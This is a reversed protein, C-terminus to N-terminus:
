FFCETPPLFSTKPDAGRRVLLSTAWLRACLLSALSPTIAPPGPSPTPPHRGAKLSLGSLIQSSFARLWPLSKLLPPGPLTSRRAASPAPHRSRLLSPADSLLAPRLIIPVPEEGVRGTESDPAPPRLPAPGPARALEGRRGGFPRPLARTRPGGGPWTVRRPCPRPPVPTRPALGPRLSGCAAPLVSLRRPLRAPGPRLRSRAPVRRPRRPSIAPHDRRRRPSGVGPRGSAGTHPAPLDARPRAAAAEPPPVTRAPPPPDRCHTCRWLSTSQAGMGARATARPSALRNAVPPPLVNPMSPEPPREPPLFQSPHAASWGPTVAGVGLKDPACTLHPCPPTRRLALWLLGPILVWLLSGWASHVRSFCHMQSLPSQTESVNAQLNTFKWRPSRSGASSLPPHSRGAAQLPAACVRPGPSTAGTGTDTGQNEPTTGTGPCGPTPGKGQIHLFATAKEHLQTFM